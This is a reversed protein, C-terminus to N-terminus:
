LRVTEFRGHENSFTVENFNYNVLLRQCIPCPKAMGLRKNYFRINLFKYKHANGLDNFKTIVALESHIANFRYGFKSALPHSKLSDCWGVEVINNRRIIFSFHKNRGIPCHILNRAVSVAKDLAKKSIM